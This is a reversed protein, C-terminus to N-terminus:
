AICSNDDSIRSSSLLCNFRTIVLFVTPCTGLSILWVMDSPILVPWTLLLWIMNVAIMFCSPGTNWQFPPNISIPAKWKSIMFLLDTFCSIMFLDFITPYDYKSHFTHYSLLFIIKSMWNLEQREKLTAYFVSQSVLCFIFYWQYIQM